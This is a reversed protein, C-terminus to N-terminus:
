PVAAAVVRDGGVEGEMIPNADGEVFECEAESRPLACRGVRGLRASWDGVCCSRQEDVADLADEEAPTRATMNVDTV